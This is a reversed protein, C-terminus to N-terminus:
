KRFHYNAEIFFSRGYNTYDFIDYAAGTATNAAGGTDGASGPYSNDTPPMKNFLNDVYASLELQPMVQYRASLNYLTWSALKKAGPFGYGNVVAVFNPTAGFRNVYLTTGFDGKSWTVSGNVKSKFEQSNVADTLLNLLADGPLQRYKHQIMDSWSGEFDFEGAAGVRVRYNFGAVVANINETAVNVKPTSVSVLAGVSDRTIQSEVQQCTPSNINLLGANCQYDELLVQDVNPQSVENSIGWHFYDANVSLQTAPSWVLGYGWVKATIPKLARNGSSTTEVSVNDYLCSNINDPTIGYVEYCTRYDPAGTFAGSLGQFEDSLSPAKFATGYHARGLLQAIPRFELSLDYTAKSVTDEQVSYKDYRGSADLTLMTLLPLRLEATGAIRSRHGASPTQEAPGFFEGANIGPDPTLRWGQNGTEAVLALGAPGGPLPFLASNTLQVRGESDETYSFAHSYASYSAYQAPTVPSYFLAYNPTFINTENIPDFTPDGMFRGFFSDFGASTLQHDAQNLRQQSYLFGADYTWKSSGFSGKVGANARIANTTAYSMSNSLGGQEEPSFIHQLNLYDTADAGTGTINPDLFYGYVAPQFSTEYFYGGNSFSTVDHNWLVNAYLQVNDTLDNTINTYLESNSDGDSVSYFGQATTGCYTGHGARFQLTETGRFQSTLNACNAPDAFYYNGFTGDTNEYGYYGYLLSDREATQPSTGNAFYQNTLPRQYGWIPDVEEYQGGVMIKLGGIKFSDGLAIRRSNGGGDSTFGYRLDVFPGELEKKMIVNIVGAIADSGYISSQGGPLVDIRDVLEIPIGSVSTVVDSGNYLAPYDAVPQGDILVKTYGPSLGFLSLVKAGPTFGASFQGNQISGTALSSQQLADAVDTFGRHQLDDGSIVTVPKATEVQSRSQPILSGTIVVEELTDDAAFAASGAFVSLSTLTLFMRARASLKRYNM